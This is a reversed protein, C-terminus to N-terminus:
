ANARRCKGPRSMRKKATTAVNITGECAVSTGSKIRTLCQGKSPPLLMWPTPPKPMSSEYQPSVTGKNAPDAKFRALQADGVAEFTLGVLWVLVGAAALWGLPEDTAAAVQVPLAVFWAALGQVVFVKRVAYAFRRGEPAASLMATYRPDEGQGLARRGIHWALRGGWVTVLLALLLSRWSGTSASWRGHSRTPM